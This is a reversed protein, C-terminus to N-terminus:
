SARASESAVEDRAERKQIQLSKEDRPAVLSTPLLLVSFPLRSPMARVAAFASVESCYARAPDLRAPSPARGYRKQTADLVVQGRRADAYTIVVRAADRDGIESGTLDSILTTKRAL